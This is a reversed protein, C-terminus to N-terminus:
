CVAILAPRAPSMSWSFGSYVLDYQIYPISYITNSPVNIYVKDIDQEPTANTRPDCRVNIGFDHVNQIFNSHWPESVSPHCWLLRISAKETTKKRNFDQDGNVEITNSKAAVSNVGSVSFTNQPSFYKVRGEMPMTTLLSHCVVYM